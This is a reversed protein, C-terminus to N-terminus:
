IRVDQLRKAAKSGSQRIKGAPTTPTVAASKRKPPANDPEPRKPSRKTVETKEVGVGRMADKVNPKDKVKVNGPTGRAGFAHPTHVQGKIKRAPMPTQVQTHSGLSKRKV